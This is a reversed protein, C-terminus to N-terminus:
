NILTVTHCSVYYGESFSKMSIDVYHRVPSDLKSLCVLFDFGARQQYKLPFETQKNHVRTVDMLLTNKLLAMPIWALGSCKEVNSM